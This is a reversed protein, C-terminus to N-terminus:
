KSQALETDFKKLESNLNESSDKYNVGEIIVTTDILLYYQFYYILRDQFTM